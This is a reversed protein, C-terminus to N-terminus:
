VLKRLEIARYRFPIYTKPDEILTDTFNIIMDRIAPSSLEKNLKAINKLLLNAPDNLAKDFDYLPAQSKANTDVNVLYGFNGSHRDTNGIIADIILMELGFDFENIIDYMSYGCGSYLVHSSAPELYNFANTFNTTQTYKETLLYPAVPVNLQKCLKYSEYENQNYPKLLITKDIWHKDLVGNTIITPISGTRYKPLNDLTSGWFLQYYPSIDEFKIHSTEEKIWYLDSLSLLYTKIDFNKHNNKLAHRLLLTATKNKKNSKRINRWNIFAEYCPNTQLVQPLHNTSIITNTTINYLPTNKVYLILNPTATTSKFLIKDFKGM